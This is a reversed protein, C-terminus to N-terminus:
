EQVRAKLLDSRRDLKTQRERIRELQGKLSVSLTMVSGKEKVNQLQDELYKMRERSMELQMRIREEEVLRSLQQDDVRAM